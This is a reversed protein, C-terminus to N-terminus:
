GNAKKKMVARTVFFCYEFIIVCVFDLFFFSFTWFFFFIWFLPLEQLPSGKRENMENFYHYKKNEELEFLDQIGHCIVNTPHHHHHFTKNNSFMYSTSLPQPPLTFQFYVYHSLTAMPHM